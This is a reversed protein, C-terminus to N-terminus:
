CAGSRKSVETVGRSSLNAARKEADASSDCVPAPIGVVNAVRDWEVPWVPRNTSPQVGKCRLLELTWQPSPSFSPVSAPFCPRTAHVPGGIASAPMFWSQMAASRGGLGTKSKVMGGTRVMWRTSAASLRDLDQPPRALFVFVCRSRASLQLRRTAAMELAAGDAIVAGALGCRIALDTAWVRDAASEARVFLSRQLLRLDRGSDRVLVAPYPFCNTGIWIVRRAPSAELARWALHVLLCLPISQRNNQRSERRPETAGDSRSQIIAYWEHVGPRLGGGLATDIETLGTALVDRSPPAIPSKLNSAHSPQEENELGASKQPHQLEPEAALGCKTGEHKWAQTGAVEPGSRKTAAHGPPKTAMRAHKREIAEIREALQEQIEVANM